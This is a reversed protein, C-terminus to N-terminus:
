VGPLDPRFMGEPFEEDHHVRCVQAIYFKRIELRAVRATGDRGGARLGHLLYEVSERFPVEAVRKGEQSQLVIM